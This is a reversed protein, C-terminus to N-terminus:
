PNKKQASFTGTDSGGVATWKGTLKAGDQSAEIRYTGGMYQVEFALRGDSFSVKQLTLRGEPAVIEGTLAGADQRLELQFDLTGDPGGASANWTGAVTAEQAPAGKRSASWQGGEGGAAPTWQGKLKDGEMAADVKYVAGGLEIEFHLKGEAFALASLSVSGRDSSMTGTLGGGEQKLSLVAALEGGPTVAVSDWTGAIGPAAPVDPAREATWTGKDGGGVQEWTGAIKGESVTGSLKYNGGMVSLEAVLNGNEFQLGSLPIVSQFMLATGSLRGGDQKIDFVIDMLGNPTEAKALWKGVVAPSGAQGAAAALGLVLVFVLNGFIIRRM